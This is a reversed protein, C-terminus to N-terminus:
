LCMSGTSSVGLKECCKQLVRETVLETEYGRYDLNMWSVVIAQRGSMMSIKLIHHSKKAEIAFSTDVLLEDSAWELASADQRVAALVIERDSRCGEAAFALAEWADSQVAALVIDRDGRCSESAWQLASADQQVAALVVERDGRCHEAAYKFARSDNEIAALVIERDGRCGEAAFDLARGDM